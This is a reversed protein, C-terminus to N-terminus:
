QLFTEKTKNRRKVKPLIWLDDRKKGNFKGAVPSISKSENGAKDVALLLYRYTMGPEVTQDIYFTSDASINKILAWDKLGKINRYLLQKDVDESASKVWNIVLGKDGSIIKKIYPSAPPVIDPREMEFVESFGSQNQRQDVAVIKYFVKKTLTKLTIHDDYFAQKIAKDTLQSFEEHRGNGRFVRYGFYRRRFKKDM